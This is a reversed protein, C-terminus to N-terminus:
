AGSVGAVVPGTPPPPPERLPFGAALLLSRTFPHHTRTALESTRFDDVLKGDKMVLMRQCAWAVVAIDHSVLVVSCRPGVREFMLEILSAKLAADLGATPEDAVLLKPRAMLVRALGARRREGGSLQDPLADPRGGLGVAELAERAAAAPNLDPRHLAASEELIQRLTMAPHLMARPDQFLLQADHRAQRWRWRSWTRTDEGLIRVAGSCPVLGLGARVLSTKGCGSEGVLAVHEGPRVSITVGDVATTGSPYQVRLDLLEWTSM